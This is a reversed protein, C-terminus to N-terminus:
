CRSLGTRQTQRRWYGNNEEIKVLLHSAVLDAFAGADEVDAVSMLTGAPLKPNLAAYREFQEMVNRRLAEIHPGEIRESPLVEVWAEILERGIAFELVKARELGEVLVKTTGDPLRVAQLVACCVGMGYLDEATPEDVHMDRQTVIFLKKDQLTAVEIAKLSRPRGVFLSVIAGPFIVVDRVPLIPLRLSTPTLVVM